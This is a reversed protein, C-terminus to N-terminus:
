GKYAKTEKRAERDLARKKLVERKDWKKKGRALAIELKIMGKKTYCSVPVLALNKSEMKKMLVLIEKKHLLLRRTRQPDYNRNDAYKYPAIHANVLFASTGTLRVFSEAMRLRNEKISKVEAGTLAIGAEFKELLYYNYRAKRNYVKM